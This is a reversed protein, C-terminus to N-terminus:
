KKKLFVRTSFIIVLFRWSLEESSSPDGYRTTNGDLADDGLGEGGLFRRSAGLVDVGSLVYSCAKRESRRVVIYISM